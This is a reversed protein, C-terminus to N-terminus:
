KILIFTIQIYIYQQVHYQKIFEISNGQTNKISIGNWENKWNREDM